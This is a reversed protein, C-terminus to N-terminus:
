GFDRGCYPSPGAIEPMEPLGAAKLVARIISWRDEMTFMEYFMRDERCAAEDCAFVLAEDRESSM